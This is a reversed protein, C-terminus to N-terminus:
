SAHPVRRLQDSSESDPSSGDLSERITPHALQGTPDFNLDITRANQIKELMAEDVRFRQAIMEQTVPPMPKRRDPGGFRAQNYRSWSIIILATVAVVIAYGTLSLLYSRTVPELMYTSFSEIGIWWAGLSILPLFLYFWVFWALLTIGSFMMRRRKPLLDPRYIIDPHKPHRASM